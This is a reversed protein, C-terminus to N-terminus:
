NNSSIRIASIPHLISPNMININPNSYLFLIVSIIAFIFAVVQINTFEQQFFFIGTITIGIISCVTWIVNITAMSNSQIGWLFLLLELSYFVMLPYIYYFSIKNRSILSIMYFSILDVTVLLFAVLVGLSSLM